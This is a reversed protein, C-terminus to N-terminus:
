RRQRPVAEDLGKDLRRQMHELQYAIAALAKQHEEDTSGPPTDMAGLAATLQTMLDVAEEYLLHEAYDGLDVAVIGNSAEVKIM